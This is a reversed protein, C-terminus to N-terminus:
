FFLFYLTHLKIIVDHLNTLIFVKCDDMKWHIFIACFTKMFSSNVFFFFFFCKEFMYNDAGRCVLCSQQIYSERQPEWFLLRYLAVMIKFFFVNVSGSTMCLKQNCRVVCLPSFTKNQVLPSINDLGVVPFLLSLFVHRQASLAYEVLFKSLHAHHLMLFFFTPPFGDTTPLNITHM